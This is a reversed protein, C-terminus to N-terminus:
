LLLDSIWPWSTFLWCAGLKSSSSSISSRRSSCESFMGLPLLEFAGTWYIKSSFKPHVFCHSVASERWYKKSSFKYLIVRFSGIYIYGQVASKPHLHACCNSHFQMYGQVTGKPHLNNAYFCVSHFQKPGGLFLACGPARRGLSIGRYWFFLHNNRM